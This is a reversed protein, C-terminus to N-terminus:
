LRAIKKWHADAKRVNDAEDGNEWLTLADVSANNLFLMLKGNVVKFTTPDVPFKDQIAM